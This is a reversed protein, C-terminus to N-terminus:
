AAVEVRGAEFAYAFRRPADTVAYRHEPYGHAITVKARSYDAVGNREASPPAMGARRKHLTDAIRAARERQRANQVANKAPPRKGTATYLNKTAKCETLVGSRYQMELVQIQRKAVYGYGVLECLRKSLQRPTWDPFHESRATCTIGGPPIIALIRETITM